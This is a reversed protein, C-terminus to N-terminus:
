GRLLLAQVETLSPLGPRAGRRTCCLAGAASAFRLMEDWAMGQAVGVALAGHFADGAGTTDVVQVPFAPLAGAQAGRQWILGREGLTVIVAPAQQALMAMGAQPSSAGTYEQSFRESAAILTCLRVLEDHGENVTDADLVTPINHDRAWNAMAIALAPQHGDFLIAKPRMQAFPVHAPTLRTVIAERYNVISRAGDPKVFIASLSTAETGRVVLRTDVGAAHLEALHQDGYIDTGLYGIFAASAGLRAAAVAANAATGGGCGMFASARAKEDPGPHHDVTFILDYCALGVCLVDVNQPQSSPTALNM